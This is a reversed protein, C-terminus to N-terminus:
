AVRRLSEDHSEIEISKANPYEIGLLTLTRRLSRRTKPRTFRTIDGGERITIHLHAPRPREPNDTTPSVIGGPFAFPRVGTHLGGEILRQPVPLAGTGPRM